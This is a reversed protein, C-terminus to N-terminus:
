LNEHASEKVARMLRVARQLEGADTKDTKKVFGSTIVYVRGAHHFYFLRVIDSAFKIRLERLGDMGKLMKSHPMPLEPGLERLLDIGRFAKARLKVPLDKLFTVAEELLRVEYHNMSAFIGIIIYDILNIIVPIM